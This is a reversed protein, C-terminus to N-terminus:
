SGFKQDGSAEFQASRDSESSILCTSDSRNCKMSIPLLLFERVVKCRAEIQTARVSPSPVAQPFTDRRSHDVSRQGREKRETVLM